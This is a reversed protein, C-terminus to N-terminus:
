EDLQGRGCRGGFVGDGRFGEQGEFPSFGDGSKPSGQRHFGGLGKGGGLFGQDLGELMWDYHEQTIDGNALKEELQSRIEDERAQQFEQWLADLDVGAEQALEELSAGDHLLDKLEEVTLGLAEALQEMPHTRDGQAYAIGAATVGAVAIVVLLVLTYKLYKNM